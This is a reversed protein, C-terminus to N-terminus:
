KRILDYLFIFFGLVFSILSFILGACAISYGFSTLKIKKSHMLYRFYNTCVKLKSLNSMQVWLKRSMLHKFKLYYASSNAIALKNFNNTIGCLQYEVIKLIDNCCYYEYEKDLEYTIISEPIFKCGDVIPLRLNKIYSVRIFDAKDGKYGNKLNNKTITSYFPANFFEDGIMKGNLYACRGIVGSVKCNSGIKRWIEDVTSLADPPILDDSDVIFLLDANPDVNELALNLATHKGGNEKKLYKIDIKKGLVEEIFKETEDNSGDDVIIWEFYDYNYDISLISLFLRKLLDKRNYTPTIISFKTRNLLENSKM